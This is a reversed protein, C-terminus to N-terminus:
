KMDTPEEHPKEKGLEIAFDRDFSFTRNRMVIIAPRFWDQRAYRWATAVSVGYLEALAKYGKCVVVKRPEKGAPRGNDKGVADEAPKEAPEEAPCLAQALAGAVSLLAAKQAPSLRSLLNIVQNIMEM